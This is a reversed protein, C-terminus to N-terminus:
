IMMCSSECLVDDLYVCMLILLVVLNAYIPEDLYADLNVDRVQCGM